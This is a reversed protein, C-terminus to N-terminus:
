TTATHLNQACDFCTKCSTVYRRYSTKSLYISLYLVLWGEPPPTSALHRPPTLAAKPLKLRPSALSAVRPLMMSPWLTVACKVTNVTLGLPAFGGKPHCARAAVRLWRPRGRRVGAFSAGSRGAAWGRPRRRREGKWRRWYWLVLAGCPAARARAPAVDAHCPHLALTISAGLSPCM